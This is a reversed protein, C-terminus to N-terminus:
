LGYLQKSNLLLTQRIARLTNSSVVWNHVDTSSPTQGLITTDWFKVMNGRYEWSSIFGQAVGSRGKTGLQSLWGAVEGASATRNLLVQYLARVFREDASGTSFLTQARNYFEQTGLIGSMVQGDSQTQMLNAWAQAEANSATRGLFKSIWGKVLYMRSELANAIGSEVATAGAQANVALWGNLEVQSPARGMCVKYLHTIYGSVDGAPQPTSPSGLPKVSGHGAGYLAQIGNIDDQFLFSTGPGHFRGGYIPNMIANVGGQSPPPEHAMGIAHGIEHEAVEIFDIGNAPNVSWNESDDFTIDGALGSSTPGPYYGYGLVNYPGDIHKHGFRIMPKGTGNYEVQSPAPGSDPVEVFNLPAVAAWRSLAEQVAAKLQAVTVGNMGGDLLNSYSYTITIPTGRGGPQSWHFTPGSPNGDQGALVYADWTPAYGAFPSSSPVVRDELSELRLRSFKKQEGRLRKASFSLSGLGRLLAHLSGTM